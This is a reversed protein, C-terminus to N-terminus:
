FKARVGMYYQRGLIDGYSATPYSPMEDTFNEVGGRVTVQETVDYQASISHRYNADVEPVDTSEVTATFQTLASPLYNLTYALRLAGIGYRADFRGRWDPQTITGDTRTLDVGTVSQELRSTHTAELGLFLNGPGVEFNYNVNYNEGRYKISGANITQAASTVVNGTADRTSIGCIDAPFNASDFCTTLFDTPQFFSLGDELDIEIRDVIVTLGEVFRPQFIFGYSTTDSIENDLNPNGGSTVLTAPVNEATSQFGALPAGLAAFVAQCNALRAAPNPGANIRDADCPDIGISDLNVVTPAFLQTLNPARFNRSRSGRLTFDEVISWRLGANWVTESGAISHDVNRFAGSLEVTEAGPLTFDQGLIPIM